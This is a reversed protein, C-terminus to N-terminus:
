LTDGHAGLSAIFFILIYAKELNVKVLKIKKKKTPKGLHSSLVNILTHQGGWFLVLFRGMYAITPHNKHVSFDFDLTKWAAM